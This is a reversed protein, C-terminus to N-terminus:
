KMGGVPTERFDRSGMAAIGTALRECPLRLSRNMKESLYEVGNRSLRAACFAFVVYM